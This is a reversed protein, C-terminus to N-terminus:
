ATRKWMYVTIFPQMNNMAANGGVSTTSMTSPSSLTDTGRPYIISGATSASVSTQTPHTHAIIESSSMAHNEEGGTDGATRVTLTLTFTQAGTGDSSLTKITENQALALTDSLSFTLNGTKVVYYTTNHTLGTMAGSPASYLVAQGTQFENNAANTLGTVTIVNSARSAFTATVTGTGAGILTRGSGFASWTGFGLLTVPNTSVTATYIAGIPFLLNGVTTALTAAVLRTDNDGVAIPSGLSVPDVSLRTIGITAQTAPVGGSAVSSNIYTYISNEFGSTNSIVFTTSGPHTITMGSSETFPTKFLVHKVGTLTATGDSNQTIGTFSIQEEQIGNGPEITGYGVSGFNAIVLNVGNIDKFSKVNLSTDGISSGAGSLSFNQLQVPYSVTTM